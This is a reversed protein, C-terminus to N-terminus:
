RFGAERLSNLANFENDEQQLNAHGGLVGFAPQGFVLTQL